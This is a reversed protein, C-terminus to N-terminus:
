GIRDGSIKHKQLPIYFFFTSGKEPESEFEIKSDIIDTLSKVIKLGAGTGSYSRSVRNDIQHFFEFISESDKKDIGIGTDQAFIKILNGEIAYGFTVTGENTFKIANEVLHNLIKLLLYQDNVVSFEPVESGLVMRLTIKKSSSVITHYKHYVKYFLNNIRFETPNYQVSGSEIESIDIINTIVEMLYEGNKIVIDLFRKKEHESYDPANAMQSFGLISNMPTRIEHSINELFSTKLRSAEETKKRAEILQQEFEKHMTIDRGISIVQNENLRALRMEFILTKGNALEMGYEITEINDNEIVYQISSFIQYTMTKSFGMEFITKGIIDTQSLKMLEANNTVYDVYTGDKEIIFFIDPLSGMLNTLRNERTQLKKVENKLDSINFFCSIIMDNEPYVNYVTFWKDIHEVYVQFNSKRSYFYVNQWDFSDRFIIPFIESYDSNTIEVKSVKFLKEFHANTRLIKMGSKEGHEDRNIKLHIIGCNVQRLSEDILNRIKIKEQETRAMAENFFSFLLAALVTLITLEFLPSMPFFLSELEPSIGSLPIGNSYFFLLLTLVIEIYFVFFIFITDSFVVLFILSFYIFTLMGSLSDDVDVISYYNNIFFFYLVIPLLYITRLSIKYNGKILLIITLAFISGLVIIGPIHKTRDIDFAFVVTLVVTTIFGALSTFTLIKTKRKILNHVGENNQFLFDFYM